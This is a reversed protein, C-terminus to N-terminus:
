PGTFADAGFNLTTMFLANSVLIGRRSLGPGIQNGGTSADTLSFQFDYIGNAPLGSAVLRGQYTFASQALSATSLCSLSLALSLWLRILECSRMLKKEGPIKCSKLSRIFLNSGPM